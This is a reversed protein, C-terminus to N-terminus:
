KDRLDNFKRQIQKDSFGPAPRDRLWGNCEDRVRKCFMKWSIKRPPILGEAIMADIVAERRSSQPVNSWETLWHRVDDAIVFAPKRNFDAITCEDEDIVKGQDDVLRVNGTACLGYLTMSAAEHKINLAKGIETAAKSFTLTKSSSSAKKKIRGVIATVATKSNM